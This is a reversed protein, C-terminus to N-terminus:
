RLSLPPRKFARSPSYDTATVAATAKKMQITNLRHNCTHKLSNRNMWQQSRTRSWRVSAVACLPSLNGHPSTVVVAGTTIKITVTRTHFTVYQGSPRCSIRRGHLRLIANVRRPRQVEADARKIACTRRTHYKTPPAVDNRLKFVTQRDTWWNQPM